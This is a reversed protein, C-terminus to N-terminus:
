LSLKFMDILNLIGFINTFVDNKHDQALADASTSDQVSDCYIWLMLKAIIVSSLLVLDLSTIDVAEPNEDEALGNM